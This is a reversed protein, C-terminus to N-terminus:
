VRGGDTLGGIRHLEDRLLLTRALLDERDTDVARFTFDHVRVARDQWWQKEAESSAAVTRRTYAARLSAAASQMVDFEAFWIRENSNDPATNM